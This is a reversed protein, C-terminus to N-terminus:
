ENGNRRKAPVTNLSFPRALAEPPPKMRSAAVSVIKEGEAGQIFWYWFGDDGSYVLLKAGPEQNPLFYALAQATTMEGQITKEHIEMFEPSPEFGEQLSNALAQDYAWRRMEVNNSM